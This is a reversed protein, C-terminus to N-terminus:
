YLIHKFFILIHKPYRSDEPVSLTYYLSQDTSHTAEVKIVEKGIPVNELIETFYRDQKFHIPSNKPNRRKLWRKMRRNM